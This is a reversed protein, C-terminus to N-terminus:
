CGLCYKRIGYNGIKPVFFCFFNNRKFFGKM